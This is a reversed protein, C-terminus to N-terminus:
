RRRRAVLGVLGLALLGASTPEPIAAGVTINAAGFSPDIAANDHVIGIAGIAAELSTVGNGAATVDVSAFLFADADADYGTDLFTPDGTNANLIGTGTVVRFANLGTVNDATVEGAALGGGAPGGPFVDTGWRQNIVVTPAAALVVDFDFTQAADFGVVGNSSFSLDLGGGTDLESSGTNYYLYLTASDGANLTLDLDQNVAGSNLASTSWFFDTQAFVSSASMAVVALVMAFNRVNV